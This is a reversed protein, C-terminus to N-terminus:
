KALADAWDDLPIVGEAILGKRMAESCTRSLSWSLRESCEQLTAVTDVDVTIHLVKTQRSM